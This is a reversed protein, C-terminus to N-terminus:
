TKKTGFLEDEYPVPLPRGKASSQEALSLVGIVRRASEPTVELPDDLILHDALARYYGHWDGEVYPVLSEVRRGDPQVQVLKITDNEGMTIGGRTGLIRWKSKGVAAISSQEFTAMVGGEFRICAWCHDENTVQHWVRKPPFFGYISEIRRPVLNLIWDIFHAGWDYFAGGSIAKSSRWWDGPYGYGGANAEVQFVEGIAGDDILGKITLFDADRRRNHFVSCVTGARRAARIMDTAEKVTLCFPKESVVHRGGKSCQIALPAHTDHPTVLVCLEVEDDELMKDLSTYTKVGPFDDEALELRSEVVDCVAVADLGQCQNISEAHHKGMSFAGGYGVIGCGISREFVDTEGCVWRLQRVVQSQFAPHGFAREDHGLALYGVRGNSQTRTYAMPHAVNRWYAQLYPEFDAHQKLIYFEDTIRFKQVRAALPHTDDSVTVDFDLVPGHDIFQSGILKMYGKNRTFSDSGCHIGVLGGGKEVFDVVGKEQKPTLQGGQAYVVLAAYRSRPLSALANRDTTRTVDFRGTANLFTELIEGCEDFPHYKGGLLVLVKKRAM